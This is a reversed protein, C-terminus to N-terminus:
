YCARVRRTGSPTPRYRWGCPRGLSGEFPRVDRDPAGPTAQPICGLVRDCPITFLIVPDGPAARAPGGLLSAALLTLAAALAPIPIRAM